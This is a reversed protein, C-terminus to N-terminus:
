CFMFQISLFFPYYLDVQEDGSQRHDEVIWQSAILAMVFYLRVAITAVQTYVLPIPVHGYNLVDTLSGRFDTIKLLLLAHVGSGSIEEDNHLGTNVVEAMSPFKKRLKISGM